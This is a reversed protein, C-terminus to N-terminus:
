IRIQMWKGQHFRRYVLSLRVFMDILSSAWAGLIGLGLVNVALYSSVVRIGVVCLLMVGAVYRNDGAGRLSGSIVVSSMQFPQFAAVFLMIQAALGWVEMSNAEDFNVYLSTLPYRLLVVVCVLLVSIMLAIRQAVKGYLQSLDPRERGMNQGVLATAAVAMGDGFTFSLNIFQSAIQHSAFAVTGLSFVIKAYLFFGVRLAVQELAANFGVTGITKM